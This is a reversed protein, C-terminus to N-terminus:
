LDSLGGEHARYRLSTMPSFSCNKYKVSLCKEKEKPNLTYSTTKNDKITIPCIATYHRSGVGLVYYNVNTM